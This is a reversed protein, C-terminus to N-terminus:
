AEDLLRLNTYSAVFIAIDEFIMVEVAAASKFKEISVNNWFQSSASM